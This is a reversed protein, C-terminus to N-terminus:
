PRRGRLRMHSRLRDRTSAEEERIQRGTLQLFIDELTPQRVQVTLVPVKLSALLRPIFENGKKVQLCIEEARCQLTDQVIEQSLSTKIEQLAQPNDKTQLTVMDGGLSSKLNAPTDLAIIKGFDIIAIRDCHEAENMYHTTMFITMGEEKQLKLVFEWLHARTQPDLGITPEDLFLVQPFHLLGRAIELRRKMGGSFTKVLQQKRDSLQVIDLARELRQQYTEADVHYLLSHFRLNEEATLETDLSPDQFIIGITKRVQDRQHVIDYGAVAATGSTPTLQTTLMNITTTKGAGNPGLFGFLEGKEVNFSIGQVAEIKVGKKLFFTKVLNNVEIVTSMYKKKNFLKQRKVVIGM